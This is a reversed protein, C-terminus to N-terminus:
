VGIKCSSIRHIREIVFSLSVQVMNQPPFIFFNELPTLVSINVKNPSFTTKERDEFLVRPKAQLTNPKTM